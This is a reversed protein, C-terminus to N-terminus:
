PDGEHGYLERLQRSADMAGLQHIAKRRMEADKDDRAVALVQDDADAVLFAQLVAEKVSADTSDRYIDALAAISEKGGAVGLMEIAERQLPPNSRGRAVAGLAQRAEAGDSQSLVFLAQKKLRLSANGALFKQLVPVARASDVQLLGNLAYLKLEESEAGEGSPVPAQPGRLGLELAQGDDLWSSKPYTARLERLAALAENARGDKGLSYAQWYLAADADAGKEAAVRAFTAAAERWKGADLARQGERYATSRSGGGEADDAALATLLPWGLAPHHYTLAAAPHDDGAAPQALLAAAALVGALTSHLCRSSNM